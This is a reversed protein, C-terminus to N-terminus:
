ESGRDLDGIELVHIEVRSDPWDRNFVLNKGDPSPMPRVQEVGPITETLLRVETGDPRMAYVNFEEFVAGDRNSAFFIWTGDASWAPYGDFAAHSSLNRVDSGDRNMIFIESNRGSPSNGGSATVRRWLIRRGDPSLSAYSDWGDHKTLRTQNSADVDMIYIETSTNDPDDRASDFIIQSGDASWKPHSDEFGNNSLNHQGTGDVNMVYIERNGDRESQFVIKAGDPSFVATRNAADTFTLQTLDAGNLRMKYVQETGSHNSTFAIWQGDPSPNPYSHEFPPRITKVASQRAQAAPVGMALLFLLSRITVNAPTLPM